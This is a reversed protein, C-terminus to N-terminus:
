AVTAYVVAGSGSSAASTDGAGESATEDLAGGSQILTVQRCPVVPEGAPVRSRPDPWFVSWLTGLVPSM